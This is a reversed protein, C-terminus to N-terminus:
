SGRKSGAKYMAHEHEERAKKMCTTLLSQEM